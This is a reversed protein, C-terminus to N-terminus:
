AAVGFQSLDVETGPSQVPMTTVNDPPAAGNLPGNSSLNGSLPASPANEPGQSGASGALPQGFQAFDVHQMPNSYNSGPNASGGSDPQGFAAFDVGQGQDVGGFKAERRNIDAGIRGVLNSVMMSNRIEPNIALEAPTFVDSPALNGPTQGSIMRSARGEGFFHGLYTEADTPQRGIRQAMNNRLDSIFGTWARAQTYPDSSNGSGYQQRLDGRMQFLGYISRSAHANPNGSSERDAVALAFTPSIGAENAARVIAAQVSPDM